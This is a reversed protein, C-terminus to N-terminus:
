NGRGAGHEKFPQKVSTSLTNSQFDLFTPEVGVAAVMIRPHLESPYFETKRLRPDDTRTRGGENVYLPTALRAPM